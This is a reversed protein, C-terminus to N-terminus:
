CAIKRVATTEEMALQQLYDEYNGSLNVIGQPTLEIIRTALSSVFEDESV